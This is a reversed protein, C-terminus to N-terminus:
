AAPTGSAGTAGSPGSSGTAATPTVEGKALSVLKEIESQPLEGSGRGVIKGDANVAVLYPYGTLGFASAIESSASDAIINGKWGENELWKQPPYNSKQDSVGTSIATVQVEAPIVGTEMWGVVLPVEKQCHPCWHAVFALLQPQGKSLEVTQEQFNKGSATPMPKGVSPDDTLVSSPADSPMKSLHAGAVQVDNTQPGLGSSQSMAAIIIVVLLAVGIVGGVIYLAVPRGTSTEANHAYGYTQKKAKPRNSM